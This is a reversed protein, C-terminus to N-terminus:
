KKKEKGDGALYLYVAVAGGLAALVFGMPQRFYIAIFINVAIVVGLIVIIKKM